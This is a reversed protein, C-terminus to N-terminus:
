KAPASSAAKPVDVELIEGPSKIGGPDGATCAIEDGLDGLCRLPPQMDKYLHRQDQLHHFDASADQCTM